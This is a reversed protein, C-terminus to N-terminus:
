SGNHNGSSVLTDAEAQREASIGPRMLSSGTLVHAHWNALVAATSICHHLAKEQNGDLHSRLAKGALYGVVWFWDQPEKGTDHEVGWRERQHAAELVVAKGFDHLEPTNLLGNLREVEALLAAEKERGPYQDPSM